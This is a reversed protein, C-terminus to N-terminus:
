IHKYIRVYDVEFKLPFGTHDPEGGNSGIALDLLLYFKNNGKFPNYNDLNLTESLDVENLLNGDLYIRIFEKDWKMAWTHFKKSWDPDKEVFDTLKKASTNWSAKNEHISGWAVNALLHPIDNIRYFEMIDIEGCDPWNKEKGLMWIAPWSGQTINIRGRIEYYGYVPWEHLNKTILCASTYSAYKRTTRWDLGLPNYNPNEVREHKGEIILLGNECRANQPQYWQLEQNRIFGYEFNWNNPDPAGDVNFEDSWILKLKNDDLKQLQNQASLKQQLLLLLVLFSSTAIFLKHCSSVSM